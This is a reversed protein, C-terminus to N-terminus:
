IILRYNPVSVRFHDEAPFYQYRSEGVRSAAINEVLTSDEDIDNEKSNYKVLM